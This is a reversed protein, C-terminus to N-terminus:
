SFMSGFLNREEANEGFHSFHINQENKNSTVFVIKIEMVRIVLRFFINQCLFYKFSANISEYSKKSKEVVTTEKKKKTLYRRINIKRIVDVIVNFIYHM